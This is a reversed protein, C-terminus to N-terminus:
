VRRTVLHLSHHSTVHHSLRLGLSNCCLTSLTMIYRAETTCRLSSLSHSRCQLITSLACLGRSIAARGNGDDIVCSFSQLVPDCSLLVELRDDHHPPSLNVLNGSCLAPRTEFINSRYRSKCLM